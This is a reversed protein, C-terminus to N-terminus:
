AGRGLHFTFPAENKLEGLSATTGSQSSHELFRELADPNLRRTFPQGNKSEGM